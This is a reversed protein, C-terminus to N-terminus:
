QSTVKEALLDTRGLTQSSRPVPFLAPDSCEPTSIRFDKQYITADGHKVVGTEPQVLMHLLTEPRLDDSVLIPPQAHTRLLEPLDSPQWTRNTQPCTGSLEPLTSHDPESTRCKSIQLTYLTGFFRPVAEYEYAEALTKPKLAPQQPYSKFVQLLRNKAIWFTNGMSGGAFKSGPEALDDPPTLRAAKQYVSLRKVMVEM